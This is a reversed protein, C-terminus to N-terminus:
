TRNWIRLAVLALTGLTSLVSLIDRWDFPTRFTVTEVVVIDNDRLTPVESELMESLRAEFIRTREGQKQRYVQVTTQPAKQQKRRAEAPIGGAMALLKNLNTTDPVEYIGSQPITGWLSVQITAEGPRAHFFYAVNSETEEIRGFAQGQAGDPVSLAALGMIFLLGGARSLFARIRTPLSYSIM